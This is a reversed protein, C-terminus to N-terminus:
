SSRTKIFHKIFLFYCLDGVLTLYYFAEWPIIRVGETFIYPIWLAGVVFVKWILSLLLFVSITIAAINCFLLSKKHENVFTKVGPSRRHQNMRLLLYIVAVLFVIIALAFLTFWAKLIFDSSSACDNYTKASMITIVTFLLGCVAGIIYGIQRMNTGKEPKRKDGVVDGFLATSRSYTGMVGAYLSFLGSCCASYFICGCSNGFVRRKTECVAKDM